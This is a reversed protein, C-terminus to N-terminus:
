GNAENRSFEPHRIDFEQYSAQSLDTLAQYVEGELMEFIDPINKHGILRPKLTEVMRLLRSTVENRIDTM